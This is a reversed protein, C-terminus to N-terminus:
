GEFFLTLYEKWGRQTGTLIQNVPEYQGASTVGALVSEPLSDALALRPLLTRSFWVTRSLDLKFHTVDEGM